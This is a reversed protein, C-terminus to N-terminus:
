LQPVVANFVLDESGTNTLEHESGKPCYTCDGPGLTEEAGDTIAKGHGARVFIIECSDTHAHKGISCGPSLRNSMIKAAGDDFIRADMHGLGGKFRDLRKEQIKGFDIKM